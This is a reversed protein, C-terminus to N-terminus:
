SNSSSSSTCCRMCPAAQVLHLVEGDADLDVVTQHFHSWDIRPKRDASDLPRTVIPAFHHHLKIDNFCNYIRMRMRNQSNCYMYGEVQVFPM